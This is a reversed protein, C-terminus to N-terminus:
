EEGEGLRVRLGPGGGGLHCSSFHIPPTRPLFGPDWSVGEKRMSCGM